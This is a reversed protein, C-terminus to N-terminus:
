SAAESANGPVNALSRRRAVHLAAGWHRRLEGGPRDALRERIEGYLHARKDAAMAIHSSFTELLDIYSDADYRLEWDYHLVQVDEFLGSAEIDARDDPLEGPRPRSEEEPLGDGIEDYVQQIEAFFEDGGDPFVHAAAWYALHGDPRLSEWARRYRTIPDLWHWATAAFVLDFDTGAPPQWEDFSANMVSVEAFPALNHRAVAALREGLEICTIRFGRRALPETAKGTGCGVELLHDGPQLSTLRVLDDFLQDPYDPRARRYRDAASDFTQRLRLRDQAAPDDSM